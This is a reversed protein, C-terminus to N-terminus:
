QFALDKGSASTTASHAVDKRDNSLDESSEDATPLESRLQKGQGFRAQFALNKGRTQTPAPLAGDESDDSSSSEDSSSSADTGSAKKGDDNRHGASNVMSTKSNSATSSHLKDKPDNVPPMKSAREKDDDDSNEALVERSDNPHGSSDAKSAKSNSATSLNLKDEPDNVPPTNSARDENDNEYNDALVERSALVGPTVDTNVQYDLSQHNPSVHINGLDGKGKTVQKPLHQYFDTMPIKKFQLLM